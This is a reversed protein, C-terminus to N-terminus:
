AVWYGRVFLTLLVVGVLVQAIIIYRSAKNFRAIVPLLPFALLAYRPMSSLTGTLTPLLIVLTTYIWYSFKIKKFAIILGVILILTITLELVANWFALTTSNITLLIKIYRYIVQPLLVLPLSNREAGFAPQATLFYFANGFTRYLYYMYALLGLPSIILGVLDYWFQRGLRTLINKYKQWLEAALFIFLIAGQIKTASALSAFIGALIYKDRKVFWFTLVTLLM